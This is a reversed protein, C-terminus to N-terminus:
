TSAHRVLQVAFNERAEHLAVALRELRQEPLELALDVAPRQPDHALRRRRFFDDHFCEPTSISSARTEVGRSAEAGPDSANRGIHRAIIQSRRARLRRRGWCGVLQGCATRGAWDIFRDHPRKM